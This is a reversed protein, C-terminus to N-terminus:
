AAQVAPCSAMLGHPQQQILHQRGDNRAFEACPPVVDHGYCVTGAPDCEGIGLHHGQGPGLAAGHDGIVQTIVPREVGVRDGWAARPM